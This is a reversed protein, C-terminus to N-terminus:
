LMSSSQHRTILTNSLHDPGKTFSDTKASGVNDKATQIRKWFYLMNFDGKMWISMVEKCYNVSEFECEVMLLGTELINPYHTCGDSNITNFNWNFYAENSCHAMRLKGKTLHLQSWCQAVRLHSFHSWLHIIPQVILELKTSCILMRFKIGAEANEYGQRQM